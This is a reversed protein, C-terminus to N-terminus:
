IFEVHDWDLGHLSERGAGLDSFAIYTLDLAPIYFIDFPLVSWLDYFDVHEANQVFAYQYFEKDSCPTLREVDYQKQLSEIAQNAFVICNDFLINLLRQESICKHQMEFETLENRIIKM